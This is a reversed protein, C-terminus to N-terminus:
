RFELVLVASPSSPAVLIFPPHACLCRLWACCWPNSPQAHMTHAFCECVWVGFAYITSVDANLKDSNWCWCLQHAPLLLLSLRLTHASAGLGHAVGHTAPNPMCPLTHCPAKERYWASVGVILAGNQPRSSLLILWLPCTPVRCMNYAGHVHQLCWACTTPMTCMNYAGHVHQLCRACTTPVTCM